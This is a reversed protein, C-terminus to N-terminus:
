NRGRSSDRRSTSEHSPIPRFQGAPTRQFSAVSTQRSARTANMEPAMSKRFSIVRQKSNSRPANVTKAREREFRNDESYYDDDGEEEEFNIEDASRKLLFVLSNYWINHRQRTPCTLKLVREPTEIIISRHHLGPPLPNDDDVQKVSVIAASKTKSHKNELAPNDKSWYLTLTYPHIWFFREHRNDSIGSVSLGSRRTYKFLYEGIVVQTIYPIMNREGLSTTSTAITATSGTGGTMVGHENQHIVPSSGNTGASSQTTHRSSSMRPADYLQRGGNTNSVTPTLDHDKGNSINRVLGDEVVSPLPHHSMGTPPRSTETDTSRDSSTDELVASQVMHRNNQNKNVVATIPSGRVEKLTAESTNNAPPPMPDYYSSATSMQSERGSSMFQRYKDETITVYGLRQAQANVEDISLQPPLSSRRNENGMLTKYKDEKLLVYGMSLAQSKLLDPSPSSNEKGVLSKYKSEPIAVYGLKQAHSKIDEAGIDSMVVLGMGKAANAVERKDKAVVFGLGRARDVVEDDSLVPERKGVPVANIGSHGSEFVSSNESAAVSPRRGDEVLVYGAKKAEERIEEVDMVAGAPKRSSLENYLNEPLTVLGFEQAREELQEHSIERPADVEKKLAEYEESPVAIFGLAKADKELEENTLERDASAKEQLEKYEKSSVAVLGLGAAAATLKGLSMPSSSEKAKSDLQNYEEESVTVLGLEKARANLEEASHEDYDIGAKQSLSIVDDRTPSEVIRRLSALYEAPVSTLDLDVSQSKTPTDDLSASLQRQRSPSPTMVKPSEDGGESASAGSYTKIHGKKLSKYEEAPIAVLGFTKAHRLIDRKTPEFATQNEVLRKYEDSSVPVYGLSKMSEVIKDGHASNTEKSQKIIGEFHDRKAAVSSTLSITSPSEPAASRESLSAYEEKTVIALGMKKAISELDAKTPQNAKRRIDELEGVPVMAMGARRSHRHLSEVDPEELQEYESKPVVVLDLAEGATELDEKTPETTKRKMESYEAQPVLELGQSAGLEKLEEKTPEEALRRYNEFDESPLAELGHKKAAGLVVEKTPEEARKTLDSLGAVTVVAFGAQAAISDLETKTPTTAKRKLDELENSALLVLGNKSAAQELHQRSPENAQKKLEDLEEESMVVSKHSKAHVELDERTPKFEKPRSSLEEHEEVPLPVMGFGRIKQSLEDKTPEATLKAYVSEPVTVLGFASAKTEVESQSPEYPKVLENYKEKPVVVLGNKKALKTIEAETPEPPNQLSKLEDHGVMAFGHKESHKKVEDSDPNKLKNLAEATLATLGVSAAASEVYDKTIPTNAAEQISQYKAVPVAILGHTKASEEVQESSPNTLREHEETDLVVLGAKEAKSKLEEVTPENASKVVTEYEEKPVAVYGVSQAKEVIEDADPNNALRTLEDHSDKDLTVLGLDRGKTEIEERTPNEASRLLKKHEAVGLAILGLGAAKTKIHDNDPEHAHKRLDEHDEKSLTVLGLGEAKSKIHEEDPSDALKRLGELDSTSVLQHEHAEAKSKLHSLDPENANKVMQQYESDGVLTYGLANARTELEEPSPNKLQRKLDKYDTVDVVTLGLPMARAQLDDATPNTVLEELHEYETKPVTLFGMGKAKDTVEEITPSNASRVLDFYEKSAIAVYGVNTAKNGLEEPTLDRSAEKALRENESTLNEHTTKLATFEDNVSSHDKMLQEYKSSVDSHDKTLQEYKSSVDSHDKTLQEYKSSVDSHDKTLADHAEKISLHQKSVDDYQSKLTAHDEPKILKNYVERGVVALGFGEAAQTVYNKSQYSKITSNLSELHSKSVVEMNLEAAQKELDEMTFEGRNVLNEYEESPVVVLGHDQAHREIDDVSMFEAALSKQKVPTTEDIPSHQSPMPPPAQPSFKLSHVSRRYRSNRRSRSGAATGISDEDSTSLDEDRAQSQFSHFGPRAPGEETETNDGSDEDMTEQGTVYQDDTPDDPATEFASEFASQYAESETTSSDIEEWDENKGLSPQDDYIRSKVRRVSQGLMGANPGTGRQFVRSRKNKLAGSQNSGGSRTADLEEQAESLLRKLEAKESREKHVSSKLGNILKHAHGLSRKVTETELNSNRSPTAKIPSAPPSNDPTGLMDDDESFDIVERDGDAAAPIPNIKQTELEHTLESLSQTLSVNENRLDEQQNKLDTVANEHRAKMTALEEKLEAERMKLNEITDIHTNTDNQLRGTESSMKTFADESKSLKGRLEQLQM